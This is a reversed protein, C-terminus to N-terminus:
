SWRLDDLTLDWLSPVGTSSNRQACSLPTPVITPVGAGVYTYICSFCMCVYLSICVCMSMHLFVPIM